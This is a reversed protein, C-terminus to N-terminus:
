DLYEASKAEGQQPTVLGVLVCRECEDATIEAQEKEKNM